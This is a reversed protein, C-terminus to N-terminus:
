TLPKIWEERWKPGLKNRLQILLTSTQEQDEDAATGKAPIFILVPVQTPRYLLVPADVTIANECKPCHATHLAGIPVQEMLDPHSRVNVILWLDFPFATACRPCTVTTSKTLSAEDSSQRIM